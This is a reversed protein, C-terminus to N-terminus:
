QNDEVVTIEQLHYKDQYQTGASDNMDGWFHLVHNTGPAPTGPTGWGFGQPPSITKSKYKRFDSKDDLELDLEFVSDCDFCEAEATVEHQPERNNNGTFDSLNTFNWMESSCVPCEPGLDTNTFM